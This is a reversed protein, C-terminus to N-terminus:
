SYSERWASAARILEERLAGTDITSEVKTDNWRKVKWIGGDADVTQEPLHGFLIQSGSRFEKM